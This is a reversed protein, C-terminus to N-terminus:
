LYKKFFKEATRLSTAPCLQRVGTANSAICLVMSEKDSGVWIGGPRHLVVSVPYVGRLWQDFTQHDLEVRIKNGAHSMHAAIISEGADNFMSDAAAFRTSEILSKFQNANRRPQDRWVGFAIVRISALALTCYAVPFSRKVEM